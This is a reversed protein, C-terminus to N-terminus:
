QAQESSSITIAPVEGQGSLTSHYSASLQVPDPITLRWEKTTDIRGGVDAAAHRDKVDPTVTTGPTYEPVASAALEAAADRRFRAFDIAPKYERGAWRGYFSASRGPSGPFRYFIHRGVKAIKGLRYAWYPLVYDAHYHTATGVEAVEHGALAERAIAKANRWLDARPKRMLAGDCTFSFQCVPQNWGQYVVGCVSNPYAPHRVRNLVVQAVARRGQEPELAAEYYVAQALCDTATGYHASSMPIGAFRGAREVGNKMTPIALNGELAGQVDSQGLEAAPEAATTMAALDQQLEPELKAMAAVSQQPVLLSSTGVLFSAAGVVAFAGYRRIRKTVFASM